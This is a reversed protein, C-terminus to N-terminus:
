GRAMTFGVGTSSDSAWARRIARRAWRNPRGRGLRATVAARVRTPGDALDAIRWATGGEAARLDLFAEAPQLIAPEAQVYGAEAFSLLLADAWAASGTARPAATLTM